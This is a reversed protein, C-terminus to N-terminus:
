TAQVVSEANDPYLPQYNSLDLYVFQQSNMEYVFFLWDKYVLSIRMKPLPKKNKKALFLRLEEKHESAYLHIKYLQRMFENMEMSAKLSFGSCASGAGPMYAYEDVQTFFMYGKRRMVAIEQEDFKPYVEKPEANVLFMRNLDPWNHRVARLLDRQAFVYNENHSRIDIFYVLGGTVHVFLLQASRQNFYDNPKVKLENLHLHHMEWDNLLYDHENLRFIGKSLYPNIDEGALFKKELNLLISELGLQQAKEILGNSMLVIRPQQSILKHKLNFYSMLVDQTSTGVPRLGYQKNLFKKIIVKADTLLPFEM